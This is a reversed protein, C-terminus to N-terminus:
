SAAAGRLSTQVMTTGEENAEMEARERRRNTRISSVVARAFAGKDNAAFISDLLIALRYGGLAVQLFFRGYIICM